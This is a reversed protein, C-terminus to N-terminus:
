ANTVEGSLAGDTSHCSESLCMFNTFGTVSGSKLIPIWRWYAAFLLLLPKCYNKFVSFHLSDPLYLTSPQQQPQESCRETWTGKSEEILLGTAALRRETRWFSRRQLGRKWEQQTITTLGASSGRFESPRPNVENVRRKEPSARISGRIGLKQATLHKTMKVIINM